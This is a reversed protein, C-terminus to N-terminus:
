RSLPARGPAPTAGSGEVVCMTAPAETSQDLGQGPSPSDRTQTLTLPTQSTSPPLVARGLSLPSSTTPGPFRPGEEQEEEEKQPLQTWQSALLPDQRCARLAEAKTSAPPMPWSCPPPSSFLLKESPASQKLTPPFELSFPLPVNTAKLSRHASPNEAFWLPVLQKIM